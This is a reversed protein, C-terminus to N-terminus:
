ELDITGDAAPQGGIIGGTALGKAVEVALSGGCGGAYRCRYPLYSIGSVSAVETTDTRLSRYSFDANTVNEGVEICKLVIQIGGKTMIKM